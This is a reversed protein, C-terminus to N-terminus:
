SSVQLVKRATVRYTSPRGVIEQSLPAYELVVAVFILFLFNTSRFSADTWNVAIYALLFALTFQAIGDEESRTREANPGASLMRKRAKAYCSLIMLGIAILGIIGLNLYMEFYGNHAQNPHWWYKRWLSKLRGGSWFSEFGAGVVPNISINQLDAWLETRGTLTLDEGLGLIIDKKIDTFALLMSGIFCGVILFATFHRWITSSQLGLIVASGIIFAVLATSADCKVVLWGIMALFFLAVYRDFGTTLRKGRPGAFLASLFVLGMVWCTAGLSNKDPMVGSLQVQGTWMDYTRGVGPYYKICLISLPIVVYACRRLLAYIAKAPERETYVVLVMLLQLFMHHWQTFVTLPTDSWMSSSLTYLLYFCLAWNKTVFQSWGLSRRTVVLLGLVILVIILYRDISVPATEIFAVSTVGYIWQTM